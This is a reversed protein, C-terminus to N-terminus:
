ENNTVLKLHGLHHKGHWAYSSVMEYLYMKGGAPHILARQFDSETMSQLLRVWRAHVTDLLNLSLHIPAAKADPLEAWTVEDYAKITPEDETLAWRFRIYSNIHSDPVHHIVQRATWGNPRYPTELQEETLSEAVVRFQTPLAAIEGIQTQILDWNLTTPNQHQGIPFRLHNM